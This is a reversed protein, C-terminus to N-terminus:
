NILYNNEREEGSLHVTWAEGFQEELGARLFAFMGHLQYFVQQHSSLQGGVHGGQDSNPYINNPITKFYQTFIITNENLLIIPLNQKTMWGDFECIVVLLVIIFIM